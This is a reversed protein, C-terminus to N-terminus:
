FRLKFATADLKKEFHFTIGGTRYWLGTTEQEIFEFYVDKHEEQESLPVIYPCLQNRMTNEQEIINFRDPDGFRSRGHHLVERSDCVKVSARGIKYLWSM